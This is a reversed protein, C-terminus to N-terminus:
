EMEKQKEDQRLVLYKFGENGRASFADLSNKIGGRIHEEGLKFIFRKNVLNQPPM